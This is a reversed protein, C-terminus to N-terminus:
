SKGGNIVQGYAVELKEAVKGIAFIEDVRTRAARGMQARLESSRCMMLIAGALAEVDGAPVVVGEVGNRVAAINGPINSVVSPLGSAMAELLANSLGERRSPMVLFGSRGHAAWIDNTEGEFVVSNGCGLEDAYTKWIKVDGRGYLRLKVGSEQRHVLGWAKLLVDFGKHAAGQTFNGVYLADAHLTPDAITAPLFVGNPIQIIREGPIGAAQLENVIGDTMAIFRCQTRRAKWEDAWPVNRDGGFLLVPLFAEKCFVPIGMKEGVWQAFGALWHSEHVHIVDAKFRGTMVGWAVEAMFLSNRARESISQWRSRFPLRDGSPNLPQAKDTETADPMTRAVQRRLAKRVSFFCGRRWVQIGDMKEFRASSSDLWKTVIRVEHGRRALAQAQRLCQREAGGVSAPFLRSVMMLIKM